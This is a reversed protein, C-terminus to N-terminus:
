LPEGTTDALAVLPLVIRVFSVGFLISRSLPGLVGHFDGIRPTPDLETARVEEKRGQAAITARGAACVNRV